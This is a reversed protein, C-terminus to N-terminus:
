WRKESNSVPSIFFLAIYSVESVQVYDLHVLKFHFKWTEETESLLFHIEETKLCSQM